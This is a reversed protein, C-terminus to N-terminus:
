FTLIAEVEKKMFLIFCNKVKGRVLLLLLRIFAPKFFPLMYCNLKQTRAFLVNLQQPLYQQLFYLLDSTYAALSRCFFALFYNLSM